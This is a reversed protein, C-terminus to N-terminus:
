VKIIRGIATKGEIIKSGKLKRKRKNKRWDIEQHKWNGEQVLKRRVGYNWGEM